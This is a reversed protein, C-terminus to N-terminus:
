KCFSCLSLSFGFIELFLDKWRCICWINFDSAQLVFYIYPDLHGGSPRPQSLVYVKFHSTKKYNRSYFSFTTKKRNKDRETFTPNVPHSLTIKSGKLDLRFDKLDLRGGCFFTVILPWATFCQEACIFLKEEINKEKLWTAEVISFWILEKKEGNMELQWLFSMSQFLALPLRLFFVRLFRDGGGSATLSIHCIRSLNDYKPNNQWKIFSLIPWFKWLISATLSVM